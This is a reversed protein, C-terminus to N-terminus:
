YSKLADNLEHDKRANWELLGGVMSDTFVTIRPLGTKRKVPAFDRLIFPLMM